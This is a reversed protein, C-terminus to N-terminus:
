GGRRCAIGRGAGIGVGGSGRGGGVAGLV